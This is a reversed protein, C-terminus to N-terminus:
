NRRYNPETQPPHLEYYANKWAGQASVAGASKCEQNDWDTYTVYWNRRDERRDSMRRHCYAGRDMTLVGDKYSGM